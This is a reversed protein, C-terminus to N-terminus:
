SPLFEQTYPARECAGGWGGRGRSTGGVWSGHAVCVAGSESRRESVSGPQDERAGPMARRQRPSRPWSRRSLSLFGLGTSGLGGGPRLPRLPRPPPPASRVGVEEIDKAVGSGCSPGLPRDSLPASAKEADAVFSFGFDEGRHEPHSFPARHGTTGEQDQGDAPILFPFAGPAKWDLLRPFRELIEYASKRQTVRQLARPVLQRFIMWRSM